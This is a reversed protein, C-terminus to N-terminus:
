SEALQCVVDAVWGFEYGDNGFVVPTPENAVVDRLVMSDTREAEFGDPDNSFGLTILVNGCDAETFVASQWCGEVYSSPCQASYRGDGYNELAAPFTYRTEGSQRRDVLESGAPAAGAGQAGVVVALQQAFSSAALGVPVLLILFLAAAGCVIAAIAGGGVERVRPSPPVHSPLGQPPPFPDM